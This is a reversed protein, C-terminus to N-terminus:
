YEVEDEVEFFDGTLNRAEIANLVWGFGPVVSALGIAGAQMPTSGNVDVGVPILSRVDIDQHSDQLQTPEVGMWTQPGTTIEAEFAGYAIHEPKVKIIWRFPQFEQLDGQSNIARSHNGFQVRVDAPNIFSFELLKAQMEAPTAYISIGSVTEENWTLEFEGSSDKLGFATILYSSWADVRILKAARCSEGSAVDDLLMVPVM